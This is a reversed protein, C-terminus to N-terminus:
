LVHWYGHVWPDRENVWSAARKALEPQTTANIGVSATGGLDINAWRWPTQGDVASNPWRGLMMRKGGFILDTKNHQCDGISGGTM